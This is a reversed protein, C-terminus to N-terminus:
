LMYRFDPARDGLERLEKDTYNVGGEAAKIDRARNIRIYIMDVIPIMILGIGVFMLMIAHGIIFRPSDQTRYVNSSIAGSLNGIGIHLSIGVGRKYQGSLNNGLWSVVGPFSAYAGAVCFFTGFYKVGPSADSINIGYGFAIMLLGTYIFPSRMKVSDSWVAFVILVTTAFVYPPVTLLNSIAATYGFTHIITPLFLSIGYLPGNISMYILIHVYIQWDKFAAAVHRLSFHEEEGVSSNDYKKKWVLYSREEPTLFAATAPFDVLIFAALIGVLVTAIGELIFIWSWGELGAVGDMFSIAFALLGSFAGALTAAGFFIGVRFQLMSRPYWITLYYVVGPFLGAEAVGLCVRAGVLQPYTKVIGMLTMVTGWVCAILPLWRSPRFKKIVLNAPCEFICYPIFYM